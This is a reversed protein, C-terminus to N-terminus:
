GEKRAVCFVGAQSPEEFIEKCTLGSNECLLQIAHHSFRWYDAPADHPPYNWARTSLILTGGTKLVRAMEPFTFWPTPDHELMETCVVTDFQADAFPMHAAMAVVDVGKGPRMDLGIYDGDFFQRPSGNVDLSGVELTSGSRLNGMVVHKRVFAMVFDDVSLRPMCSAAGHARMAM